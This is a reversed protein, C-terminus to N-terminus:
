RQMAAALDPSAALVREVEAVLTDVRHAFTHEALVLERAAASREALAEPDALVREITTRLERATRYTLVAGGFREHLEPMDDSIVVAGSALADFIRNSVFGHERMDDWHDALVIKASSYVRHLDQNPIFEDVVLAPDIIGEWNSGYVALDHETPLLDRLIRRFVNRSNGVFVLEHALAPDPEPFFLRPDTAQELAIVPTRTLPRLQDAFRHSAVCVLDYVDCEEISVHDPHSISWLVNLQGPKPRYRTLGKLHIVVDHGLGELDDWEELVQIQCGHGRRKCEAEIARAFHLDGWNEAAEWDPAGIKLCFSLSQEHERLLAALERARHDYTHRELVIARYREQLATRRQEDGLLEDLRARLTERSDWTPFEDDFLEHVGEACNTLPLRGCALADFVRSNVAGYPLTPGATDDIVLKASSYVDPLREYDVRGRAYPRMAEVEEWRHGFLLLQEDPRPDLAAIVSREARWYNGTFVYDAALEPIPERPKFREANTALPFRITPRGTAAEVLEASRGSSALLLDLRGFWPREMWRETWNRIWAVVVVGDPVQRVDMSDMTVLLYDLGPPLRYWEDGEREVYTVQWGLRELADGMEHATYWDGARFESDHSTLTIAIHPRHDGGWFPDGDIAGTRYGRRVKPGWREHFLKLNARRHVRSIDDSTQLQTASQQHFLVARGTCILNEGSVTLKMGLDVDETGYHYGPSFGGVQEFGARPVLMCAATLAPCRQEVGFGNDFLEGGDDVNFAKLADSEYGFRIGRHQVLWGHREVDQRDQGYILAAAVGAVGDRASVAVLERLWGPEFAEVDNNLFLILESEALTAGQNCAESFNVNQDNHIVQLGFPLELAGLYDGSADSSANDVVILEFEPYDTHDVLGAVLQELLERGDRTPVVISVPPCRDLEPVPGLRERIRAALAAREAPDRPRAGSDLLLSRPGPPPEPESATPTRSVRLPEAARLPAGGLAAHAEELRAIRELAAAVAGRTKPRRGRLRMASTTVAHGYRWATSGEVRELDARATALGHVLLSLQQELERIRAAAAPDAGGQDFRGARPPAAAPPPASSAAWRPAVTASRRLRDMERRVAELEETRTEALQRAQALEQKAAALRSEIRAARESEADAREIAVEAAGAAEDAVRKALEAVHRADDRHQWAEGRGSIASRLSEQAQDRTREAQRQRERAVEIKEDASDVHERQAALEADKSRVADEAALLRGRVAVLQEVLGDLEREAGALRRELAAVTGRRAVDDRELRERLRGLESELRAGLAREQALEAEREALQMRLASLASATAPAAGTPEPAGDPVSVAADLATRLREVRERTQTLESRRESVAAGLRSM